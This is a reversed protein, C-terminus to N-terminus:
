PKTVRPQTQSGLISVSRFLGWCDGFVRELFFLSIAMVPITVFAFPLWHLVNLLLLGLFGAHFGFHPRASALNCWAIAHIIGMTISMLIVGQHRNQRDNDFLAPLGCLFPALYM